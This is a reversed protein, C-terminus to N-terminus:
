ESWVKNDVIPFGDKNFTAAMHKEAIALGVANSVGTWLTLEEQVLM